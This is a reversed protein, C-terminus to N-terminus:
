PNREPGSPPVNDSLGDDDDRAERCPHELTTRIRDVSIRRPDYAIIATGTSTDLDLRSVGPVAGARASLERALRADNRLGAVKLCMRGASLSILTTQLVVQSADEALSGHEGTSVEPIM